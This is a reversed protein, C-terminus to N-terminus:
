KCLIASVMSEPMVPQHVGGGSLACIARLSNKM